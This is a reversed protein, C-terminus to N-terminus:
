GRDNQVQSLPVNNPDFQSDTLNVSVAWTVISIEHAVTDSVLTGPPSRSAFDLHAFCFINFVSPFDDSLSQQFIILTLFWSQDHWLSLRSFVLKATKRGSQLSSFFCNNEFM